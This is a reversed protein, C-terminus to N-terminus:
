CRLFDFGMQELISSNQFLTSKSQGRIQLANVMIMRTLFNTIGGSLIRELTLLIHHAVVFKILLGLDMNFFTVLYFLSYYM